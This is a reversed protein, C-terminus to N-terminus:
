LSYLLNKFWLELIGPDYEGYYDQYYDDYGYSQDGYNPQYNPDLTFRRKRGKEHDNFARLFSFNEFIKFKSFM